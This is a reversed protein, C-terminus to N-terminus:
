VWVGRYEQVMDATLSVLYHSEEAGNVDDAVGFQSGNEAMRKLPDTM